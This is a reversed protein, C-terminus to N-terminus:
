SRSHSRRALPLVVAYQGCRQFLSCTSCDTRVKEPLWQHPVISFGHQTFYGPAHSFACLKEFGNHAARAVLADLLQRGIGRCRSGGDVVLSRVEAVTGSLPALDACGIIDDQDVAVVFRHVHATIEDFRRPLLHGEDLHGGILFHIGRADHPTAQRLTPQATPALPARPGDLRVPQVLETIM